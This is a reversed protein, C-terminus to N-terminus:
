SNDFVYYTIVFKASDISNSTIAASLKATLHRNEFADLSDSIELPLQASFNIIRDGSENYMFRRIQSWVDTGTTTGGNVGINLNGTNGQTIVSDRDVFAIIHFAALM